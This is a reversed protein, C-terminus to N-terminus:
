SPPQTWDDMGRRKCEGAIATASKSSAQRSALRQRLQERVEAQVGAELGTVTDFFPGWNEARASKIMGQAALARRAEPDDARVL